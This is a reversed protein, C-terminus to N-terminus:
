AVAPAPTTVAPAADPRQDVLHVGRRVHLRQGRDEDVDAADLLAALQGHVEEALRDEDAAARGLLDGLRARDRHALQADVRLRAVGVLGAGVGAVLVAGHVFLAFPQHHGADARMEAAHRQAVVRAIEVAPEAGAVPRVVVRGAADTAARRGLVQVDRHDLEDVVGGDLEPYLSLGHGSNRVVV